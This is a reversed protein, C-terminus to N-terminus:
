RVQHSAFIQRRGERAWDSGAGVPVIVQIRHRAGIAVHVAAIVAAVTQPSLEAPEPAALVAPPGPVVTAPMPVQVARRRFYFGTLELMGWISMLAVFVVILGNLQFVISESWSFRDPLSAALVTASFSPLACM